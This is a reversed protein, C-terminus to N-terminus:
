HIMIWYLLHFVVGSEKTFYLLKNSARTNKKYKKREGRTVCIHTLKHTFNRNCLFSFFFFQLVHLSMWHRPLIYTNSKLTTFYLISYLLDILSTCRGRGYIMYVPLLKWYSDLFVFNTIDEPSMQTSKTSLNLTLFCLPLVPYNTRLSVL